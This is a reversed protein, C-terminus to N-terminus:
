SCVPSTVYTVDSGWFCPREIDSDPASRCLLEMQLKYTKILVLFACVDYRNIYNILQGVYILAIYKVDLLMYVLNATEVKRLSDGIERRSWSFRQFWKGLSDFAVVSFASSFNKLIGSLVLCTCLCLVHIKIQTTLCTLNKYVAGLIKGFDTRGLLGAVQALTYMILWKFDSM